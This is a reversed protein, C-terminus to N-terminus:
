ALHNVLFDVSDSCAQGIATREATTLDALTVGREFSHPGHEIAILRSSAGAEGLTAHMLTSQEYPVDTDATGHLLLTPPWDASVHQVPCWPRFAEPERLPDKGAVLLPWAGRQRTWLYFRSRRASTADDPASIAATGVASSAEQDSVPPQRNYFADPEAYWAGAIDGYGYYSVLARPRPSLMFGCMLTLYGGASHGMVGIRDADLGYASGETQVWGFADQVDALIAPLKTEPALRYDIAVVAMGKRLCTELLGSRGHIQERNGMILAGGHIWVVVPVRGEIAPHYVDLKIAHSDATKYVVTEPSQMVVATAGGRENLAM